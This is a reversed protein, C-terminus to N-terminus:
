KKEKQCTAHLTSGGYPSYPISGHGSDRRFRREGGNARVVIQTKTIKSVMGHWHVVADTGRGVICVAQGVKFEEAM